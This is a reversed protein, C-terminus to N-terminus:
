RGDRTSPDVVTIAFTPSTTSQVTRSGPIDVVGLSTWPTTSLDLIEVRVVEV